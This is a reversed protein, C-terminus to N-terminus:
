DSRPVTSSSRMRPSAQAIALASAHTPSPPLSLRAKPSMAISSTSNVAVLPSAPLLSQAPRVVPASYDPYIGALSPLNGTHDAMARSMAGLNTMAAFSLVAALSLRTRRSVVAM